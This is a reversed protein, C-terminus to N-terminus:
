GNSNEKPQLIAADEPVGCQHRLYGTLRDIEGEASKLKAEAEAWSQRLTANERHLEHFDSDWKLKMHANEAKLALYARAAFSEARWSEIAACSACGSRIRDVGHTCREEVKTPEPKREPCGEGHIWTRLLGPDQMLIGANRCEPIGLCGKPEPKVPAPTPANPCAPAHEHRHTGMPHDCPKADALHECFERCKPLCPKKKSM